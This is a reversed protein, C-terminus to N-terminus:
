ESSVPSYIAQFELDSLFARKKARCFGDFIEEGLEAGGVVLAVLDELIGRLESAQCM